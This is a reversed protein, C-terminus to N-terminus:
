KFDALLDNIYVIKGSHASKEAAIGVIVSWFGEEITATDTKRGEINDIFKRHEFYTGGMHGSTQITKPYCPTSIRSPGNDALLMEFHTHNGEEPLYNENEYARIRGEDGCITLEEYFMPAFMCLNFNCKVGNEYVVIVIANDLIDSKQGNYKFDLFNVDQGGVAYVYKPKSQAFLNFLDFYHCCKEVLTGGSYESFKNWQNIKDLFPIRHEVITITHVNGLSKKKLVEERAETYIAKYRYQLGVQFIASYSEAIKKIEYADELKTVMPKELFINKGSKIAERVIEIHSYNPTCIILGDVDPDNCASALDNYVKLKIDPYLESFMQVAQDISHQNRDYIGNISGRGELMTVRMHEQAMMGSGIINFKHNKTEKKYVYLDEKPLYKVNLFNSYVVNNIEKGKKNM